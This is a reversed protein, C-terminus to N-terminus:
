LNTVLPAETRPLKELQALTIPVTQQLSFRESLESGGDAQFIRVVQSQIDLQYVLQKTAYEVYLTVATVPKWRIPTVSLIGIRQLYNFTENPTM